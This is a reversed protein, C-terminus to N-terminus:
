RVEIVRDIGECLVQRYVVDEDLRRLDEVLSNVVGRRALNVEQEALGPRKLTAVQGDGPRALVVTGSPRDIEVRTIGPAAYDDCPGLEVPVGLKLALWGALLWASPHNERARIRVADVPEPTGDDLSAVLVGRWLTIGPWALDTDGPHYNDALRRLAAGGDSENVSYTIRRQAIRGVPTLATPEEPLHPWWAVIPADPLLLPMVLTDAAEVEKGFPRLVVVESAGADGGIRIQADIGPEDDTDLHPQVVIVRAPHEHSAANSAQIAREAEEEDRPLIVLTMVRGLAVVGGEERLKVLRAAVQASSTNRMTVIM